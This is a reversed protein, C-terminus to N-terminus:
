KAKRTEGMKVRKKKFLQCVEAPVSVAVVKDNFFLVFFGRWVVNELMLFRKLVVVFVAESM